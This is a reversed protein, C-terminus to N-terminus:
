RLQDMRAADLRLLIFLLMTFGWLSSGGYSFFPLPIGIVPLVGLVMGVNIMLHFLFISAVAYAYIQNFITRQREAISILHLIFFLYVLLVILSGFFGWEEGVTCFIFDTDQEPVFQLKTQTGKLYGKGFFRGSGIAIRAQNVNYGAGALDEKMGLLVEIRTRQHPKLVNNFVFGCVQTYGICVLGFVAIWILSYRRYYLSIIMAYISLAVVIGVSMWNFPVVWWINILAGIGYTAAIVALMIPLQWRKPHEKCIFFIEIAMLLIMCSVMGVDGSGIPLPITSLRISLIFLTVAAVCSWLIHPTMGQRYFVLLFAAFVLASGTEKQLIMIVLAPVGILAFPVILDRWGRLKYDYRSMYKAVALAVICKAFEAPQLSVPGLSIWSLSGKIDHALFPTAILLLLMLIYAVYALLDYTKYDILLLTGGMAISGLIWVFQKGARNSFDVISTQDFNYSAGYINLWGFFVLAIFFGITPWDVNQLINGNRSASM